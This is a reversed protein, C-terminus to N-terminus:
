GLAWGAQAISWPGLGLHRLGIEDKLLGLGEDLMLKHTETVCEIPERL